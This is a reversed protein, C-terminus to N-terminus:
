KLDKLLTVKRWNKDHWIRDSGKDDVIALGPIALITDVQERIDSWSDPCGKGSACEECEKTHNLCCIIKAIQKRLEERNM